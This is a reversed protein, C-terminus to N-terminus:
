YIENYYLIFDDRSTYIVTIVRIIIAYQVCVFPICSGAISESECIVVVSLEDETEDILFWGEPDLGKVVM